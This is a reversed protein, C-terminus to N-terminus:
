SFLIIHKHLLCYLKMLIVVIDSHQNSKCVLVFSSNARQINWKINESNKFYFTNTGESAVM